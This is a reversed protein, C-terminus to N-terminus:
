KKIIAIMGRKEKIKFEIKNKFREKETTVNTSLFELRKSNTREMIFKKFKELMKKLEDDSFIFLEIENEKKLGLEKRFAQVARSMERAYGEAELEPTIKTDIEVNWQSENVAIKYEIKKINLQSKIIEELEKDFKHHFYITAQALPWKLGIQSKDRQSLGKEIFSFVQHFKVELNKDIKTKDAKPWSSL